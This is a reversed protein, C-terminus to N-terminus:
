GIGVSFEERSNCVLRVDHGNDSLPISLASGMRGAGPIFIM